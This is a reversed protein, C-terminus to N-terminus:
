HTLSESVIPFSKFYIVCRTVFTRNNTCCDRLAQLLGPDLSLVPLVQLRGTLALKYHSDAAPRSREGGDNASIDGRFSESSSSRSRRKVSM